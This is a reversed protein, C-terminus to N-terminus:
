YSVRRGVKIWLIISILIGLLAGSIGYEIRNSSSIFYGLASLAITLLGYFAFIYEKKIPEM